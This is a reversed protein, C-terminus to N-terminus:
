NKRTRRRELKTIRADHKELLRSIRHVYLLAVGGLGIDAAMRITDLDYM